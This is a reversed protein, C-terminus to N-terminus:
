TKIAWVRIVSGISLASAVSSHITISTVNADTDWMHWGYNILRSSGAGRTLSFQTRVFGDFNRRMWAQM